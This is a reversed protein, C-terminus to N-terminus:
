GGEPFLKRYAAIETEKFNLAHDDTWETERSETYMVVPNIARNPYRANELMKVIAEEGVDDFDIVMLEVKFVKTM